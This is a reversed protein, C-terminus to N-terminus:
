NTHEIAHVFHEFHFQLFEQTHVLFFRVIICLVADGAENAKAREIGDFEVSLWNIKNGVLCGFHVSLM